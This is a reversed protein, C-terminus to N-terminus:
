WKLQELVSRQADLMDLGPDLYAVRDTGVAICWTAPSIAVTWRKPTLEFGPRNMLYLM